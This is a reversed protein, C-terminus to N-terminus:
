VIMARDLALVIGAVVIVARVFVLFTLLLLIRLISLPFLM